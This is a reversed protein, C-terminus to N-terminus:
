CHFCWFLRHFRNLTLFLSVLVVDINNQRQEPTKITLQSCIESIAIANGNKVKFLYIAAPSDHLYWNLTFFLLQLNIRHINHEIHEFNLYYFSYILIIFTTISINLTLSLSMLFVDGPTM